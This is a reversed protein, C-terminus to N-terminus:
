HYNILRASGSKVSMEIYTKKNILPIVIERLEMLCGNKKGKKKTLHQM